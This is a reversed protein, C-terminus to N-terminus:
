ARWVFLQNNRELVGFCLLFFLKVCFVDFFILWPWLGAGQSFVNVPKIWTARHMMVCELGCPVCWSAHSKEHNVESWQFRVSIMTGRKEDKGISVEKGPNCLRPRCSLLSHNNCCLDSVQLKFSESRSVVPMSKVCPSNLRRKSQKFFHCSCHKM